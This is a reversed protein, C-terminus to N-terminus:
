LFLSVIHMVLDEWIGTFFNTIFFMITGIIDFGIDFFVIIFFLLFGFRELPYLKEKVKGPLFSTLAHYGDFGPIPLMNFVFLLINMLMAWMFVGHAAMFVRNGFLDPHLTLICNLISLLLSMVIGLLLNACPGALSILMFDRKPKKLYRANVQVPKAWGFRFFVIFLFGMPDIHKMPNMTLRGFAKQTDDGCKYAVLAHMYEHLALGLILGPLLYLLEEFWSMDPM